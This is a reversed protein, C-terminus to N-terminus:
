TSAPFSSLITVLSKKKLWCAPYTGLDPCIYDFWVETQLSRHLSFLHRHCMVLYELVSQIRCTSLCCFAGMCKLLIKELLPQCFITKWTSFFFTQIHPGGLELFLVLQSGASRSHQGQLAWGFKLSTLTCLPPFPMPSGIFYSIGARPFIRHQLDFEWETAKGQLDKASPSHLPQAFPVWEGLMLDKLTLLSTLQQLLLLVSQYLVKCDWLVKVSM